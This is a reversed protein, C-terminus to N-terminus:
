ANTVGQEVNTEVTPFARLSFSVSSGLSDVEQLGVARGKLLVSCNNDSM